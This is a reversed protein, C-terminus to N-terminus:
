ITSERPQEHDYAILSPKAPPSTSTSRSIASKALLHGRGLDHMPSCIQHRDDQLVTQEDAAVGLHLLQPFQDALDRRAARHEVGLDDPCEDRRDTVFAIERGLLLLQERRDGGAEGVVELADEAELLEEGRTRPAATLAALVRRRDYYYVLYENPLAGIARLWAAPFPNLPRVERVTAEGGDSAM